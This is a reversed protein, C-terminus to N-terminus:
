TPHCLELVSCFSDRFIKLSKSTSSVPFLNLKKGIVKLIFGVMRHFQTIQIGVGYSRDVREQLPGPRTREV